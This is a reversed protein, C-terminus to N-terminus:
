RESSLQRTVAAVLDDRTFPRVLVNEAECVTGAQAIYIARLDPNYKRLRRALGPGSGDPMSLEAVLVDVRQGSLCTLLAHGSHAAGNVAFGRSALARTCASALERDEAVIFVIAPPTTPEAIPDTARVASASHRRSGPPM